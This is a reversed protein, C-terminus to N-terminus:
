LRQDVATDSSYCPPPPIYEEGQCKTEFPMKKGSMGNLLRHKRTVEEAFAGEQCGIFGVADGQSFLDQFCM